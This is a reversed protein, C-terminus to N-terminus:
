NALLSRIAFGILFFGCACEILKRGRRYVNAVQSSSFVMAVSGYWLMGIIGVMVVLSLLTQLSANSPVVGAFVSVYFMMSNPNALNTAIGDRLATEFGPRGNKAANAGPVDARRILKIGFWILYIAGLTKVAWFLPPAIATLLGVGFVSIAAWLLNVIAIGLVMSLAEHRTTSAARHTVAVFNPGPSVVGALCVVTASIIAASDFMALM